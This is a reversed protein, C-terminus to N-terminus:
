LTEVSKSRRTKINANRRVKSLAPLFEFVPPLDEGQVGGSLYRAM